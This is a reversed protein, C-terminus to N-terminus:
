TEYYKIKGTKLLEEIREAIGKGVTPINELAKTGGKKYVDSVSEELAEINIAAKEYARPKFPIDTWPLINPFIIYFTLM